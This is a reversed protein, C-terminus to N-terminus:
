GQMVVLEGGTVEAVAQARGLPQIQDNDGHILLLPCTIKRYMAESVDISPPITRAEVTKVLVPGTTEAAWEIGDEIQRTSHPESCISRIFHQAFDPYQALWYARNYKDWGEFREHKALFHRPTLYPYGPGITAVTGVLIAAKVREPHHAALASAHLGGMSLGILIAEGADTADMVALADAVLHDLSYAAAEMPRDSEGNGRADLTIWRFHESSYP